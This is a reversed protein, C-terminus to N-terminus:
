GMLLGDMLGDLLLFVSVHSIYQFCGSVVGEKAEQRLLLDQIRDMGGGETCTLQNWSSADGYLM